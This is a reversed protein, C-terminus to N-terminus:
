CLKYLTNRKKYTRDGSSLYDLYVCHLGVLIVIAALFFLSLLMCFGMILNILFMRLLRAAEYNTVYGNGYIKLVLCCKYILLCVNMGDVVVSGRRRGVDVAQHLGSLQFSLCCSLVGSLVVVIMMM